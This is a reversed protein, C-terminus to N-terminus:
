ITLRLSKDKNDGAFSGDLDNDIEDVDDGDL